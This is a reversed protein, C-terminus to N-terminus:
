SSLDGVSMKGIPLEGFVNGQHITGVCATIKIVDGRVSMKGVFM